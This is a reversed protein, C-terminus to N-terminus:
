HGSALVSWGYPMHLSIVASPVLRGRGRIAHWTSRGVHVVRVYSGLVKPPDSVSAVGEHRAPMYDSDLSYCAKTRIARLMAVTPYPLGHTALLSMRGVTPGLVEQPDM